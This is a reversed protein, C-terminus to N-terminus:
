DFQKPFEDSEFTIATHISCNIHLNNSIKKASTSPCTESHTASAAEWPRNTVVYSQNIIYRTHGHGVQNDKVHLSRCCQTHTYHYDSSLCKNYM